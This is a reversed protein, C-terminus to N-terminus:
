PGDRHHRIILDTSHAVYRLLWTDDLYDDDATQSGGFMVCEVKGYGTADNAMPPGTNTLSCAMGHGWRPQPVNRLRAELPLRPSPNPIEMTLNMPAWSGSSFVWTDNM